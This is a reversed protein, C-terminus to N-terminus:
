DHTKKKWRTYGNRREMMLRLYEQPFIGQTAPRMAKKFANVVLHRDSQYENSYSLSHSLDCNQLWEVALELMEAHGKDRGLDYVARMDDEDYIMVEEILDYNGYGFQKSIIKNTLPHKTM